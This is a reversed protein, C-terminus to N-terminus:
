SAAEEGSRLYLLRITVTGATDTIEATVTGPATGAAFTLGAAPLVTEGDEPFFEGDALTFLERIYGDWYYIRTIYDEGDIEEHLLLASCDGFTGLEVADATDWQRLKTALYQGATRQAASDRGRQTLDRYTGAGTLLVSLICAAFVGVLLLAPLAGMGLHRRKDTM